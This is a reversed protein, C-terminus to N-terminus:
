SVSPINIEPFLAVIVDDLISYMIHQNLRRNQLVSFMRKAGRRANSRGIMNAALDPMLTSLKKNADERTRIKEEASRAPSPPKLSGNPWLGDKFSTIYQLMHSEDMQIKAVDRLKREITGGLVQQLIIVVAQRRLWNNQKDLEFVALILDCIPASFSSLGSEGGLPKLDGSSLKLLTEEPPVDRGAANSQMTSKSKLAQAILDEDNVGSGVIGAFEAAQKSLRQIMVDLMSPGFFIDDISDAVSRYMNRVIRPGTILESLSPTLKNLDPAVFASEQSLFARFEESECVLPIALLAQMYRELAVRRTDVFSNSLSTVLKKPPFELTRCAAFRERLRQHLNWFENYRRTVVWGSMDAGDPGLQRVEVLYRVVQKGVDDGSVVSDSISIKTRGVALRNDAEQQQYQSRQFTLERLERTMASRSRRLIKSEQADGTLEAKRILADLLTEQSQLNEIKGNLREIESSLQLDGPAPLNISHGGGAYTGTGSDGGDGEDEDDFIDSSQSKRRDRGNVSSSTMSLSVDSGFSASRPRTSENENAIMTTLAVQLADITHQQVAGDGDQGEDDDFLPARPAEPESSVLFALPSTSPAKPTERGFSKSAPLSSSPRSSDNSQMSPLSSLSTSTSSTAPATETRILPKPPVIFTPRLGTRARASMQPRIASPTPSDPLGESSLLLGPVPVSAEAIRRQQTEFDTVVKFWLESKEFDQFDEDMAREVQRQALLVSNRVRKERAVSSQSAPDLVFAKVTEIYSSSIGSLRSLANPNSFYLGYIMTMDARINASASPLNPADDDDDFDQEDSGSDVEELPNKFTDVTLWFQVPLSKNRRDMFEMFYSLSNPNTLVERLSLQQSTQAHPWISQCGDASDDDGGLLVIRNEIQRKANYLRDLYAVVDSAKEGNILEENEHNALLIRTRRIEGVIDNKLRRADLLSNCKSISQVFSEFHRAGTRSTIDETRRIKSMSPSISQNHRASGSNGLQSDLINRVKSILKQQRIAAGATQDIMMNWFDPDAIMDIIPSLIVCAILERAIIAVAKSGIEKEPMILPLVKEVLVRLHAQETHKTVSSALNEVAPHLKGDKGAYRSALLLDLEDSQTLHREVGVGRLAVESQRFREVHTTIKPLIRRVILAPLDVGELRDIVRKLAEHITADVAAPFAPTPSIDTYWPLVFHKIILTIIENLLTSISPSAPYLPPRATTFDTLSWRSRTLVAQWAAPTTFVLPRAATRLSQPSSTTRHLFRLVWALLIHSAFLLLIGVLLLLPSLLLLAIPSLLFRAALPLVIALALGLAFNPWSVQQM